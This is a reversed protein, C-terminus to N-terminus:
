RDRLDRNFESLWRALADRGQARVRAYEEAESQDFHDIADRHQAEVERIRDEEARIQADLTTDIRREAERDHVDVDITQPSPPSCGKGIVFGLGVAVVAVGIVITYRVIESGGTV